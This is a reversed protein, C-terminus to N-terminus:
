RSPQMTKQVARIDDLVMLAAARHMLGFGAESMSLAQLVDREAEALDSATVRRPAYRGEDGPLGVAGARIRARQILAATRHGAPATPNSIMADVVARATRPDSPSLVTALGIWADFDRPKRLLTYRYAELAAWSRGTAHLASAFLKMIPQDLLGVNTVDGAEADFDDTGLPHTTQFAMTRSVRAGREPAVAVVVQAPASPGDTAPTSPPRPIVVSSSATPPPPLQERAGVDHAVGPMRLGLRTIPDGHSPDDRDSAGFLVHHSAPVGGSSAINGVDLQLPEPTRRGLFPIHSLVRSLATTDPKLSRALDQLQADLFPLLIPALLRVAEEYEHLSFCVRALLTPYMREQPDLVMAERLLRQAYVYDGRMAGTYQFIKAAAEYRIYPDDPSAELRAQIRSFEHRFMGKADRRFSVVILGLGFMLFLLLVYMWMAVKLLEPNLPMHEVAPSEAPRPEPADSVVKLSNNATIPESSKSADLPVPTNRLPSSLFLLGRRLVVNRRFTHIRLAYM